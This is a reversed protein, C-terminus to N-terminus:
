PTEAKYHGVLLGLSDPRGPVAQKLHEGRPGGAPTSMDLLVAGVNRMMGASKLIRGRVGLEFTKAECERTM